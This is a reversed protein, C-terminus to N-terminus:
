WHVNLKENKRAKSSIMLKIRVQGITAIRFPIFLKRLINYSTQIGSARLMLNSFIFRFSDYLHIKKGSYRGINGFRHGLQISSRTFMKQHFYSKSRVSIRLQAHNFFANGLLISFSLLMPQKVLCYITEQERRLFLMSCSICINVISLFHVMCNEKRSMATHEIEM